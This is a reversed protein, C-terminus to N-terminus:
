EYLKSLGHALAKFQKRLSVPEIVELNLGFGQLWWELELTHVLEAELLIRGDDQTTLRQNDSLATEALHSATGAHFLVKLQIPEDALPYSFQQQKEIYDHLSFESDISSSEGGMIASTFRHLVFQKIITEDAVTCILYVVGMRVVIGLPHMLYEKAEDRGRSQYSTHIVKEELLAQYICQQIDGDITPKLLVPGREIIAVKEPWTRLLSDAHDGLISGARKFYPELLALTSKPLVPTLYSRAMDFTLATVPDMGPLEQIAADEIWYWYNKRGDFDNSLPFSISLKNLDRQVTRIDVTYGEALLVDKLDHVTVKRPFRPIRMLMVWQRYLTEDSRAM